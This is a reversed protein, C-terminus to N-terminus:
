PHKGEEDIQTLKKEDQIQKYHNRIMTCAEYGNKIPMELDLFIIDYTKQKNDALEKDRVLEFAEQGNTAKDIEGIDDLLELMSSVTFLAFSDDNM